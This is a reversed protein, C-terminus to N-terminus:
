RTTTVRGGHAVAVANVNGVMLPFNIPPFHRAVLVKLENVDFSCLAAGILVGFVLVVELLRATTPQFHPTIVKHAGRTTHPELEEIKDTMDGFLLLVEYGYNVHFFALIPSRLLESITHCEHGFKQFLNVTLFGHDIRPLIEVVFVELVAKRM